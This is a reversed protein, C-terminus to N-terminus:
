LGSSMKSKLALIRKFMAHEMQKLSARNAQLQDQEVRWHTDLLQTIREFDHDILFHTTSITLENKNFYAIGDSLALYQWQEPETCFRSLGFQLSTMFRAHNAQLGFRGSVDESVFSLVGEIRQEHNIDMLKLTFTAM